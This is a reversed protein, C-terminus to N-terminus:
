AALQAAQEMQMAACEIQDFLWKWVPQSAAQAEAEWRDAIQRPVDKLVLERVDTRKKVEERVTAVAWQGENAANLIEDQISDDDISVVERYHGFKLNTYRRRYLPIRRAVSAYTRLTGYDLGTTDEAIAYRSSKSDHYEAVEAYVLWDGIRFASTRAEIGLTKGLEIWEAASLGDALELGMEAKPTTQAKPKTVVNV